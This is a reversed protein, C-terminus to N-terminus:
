YWFKWWKKGKSVAADRFGSLMNQFAVERQRIEHRYQEREEIFYEHDKSLAETLNYIESNTVDVYQALEESTEAIQRSLNSIEKTTELSVKSISKSLFKLSNATHEVTQEVKNSLGEIESKTNANSKYISDSLTKVTTLAGNKIEKKVEALVETRVVSRIEEKMEHFFNQKYRDLVSLFNDVNKITTEDPPVPSIQESLIQLSTEQKSTNSDPEQHLKNGFSKRIVEKNVKKGHKEKMEILLQIETETFLRAGQKSRPIYLLGDLEKEWRKITGPPVKIKQSVEKMSYTKMFNMREIRDAFYVMQQYYNVVVYGKKRGTSL